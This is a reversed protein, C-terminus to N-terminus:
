RSQRRRPGLKAGVARALENAIREGEEDEVDNAAPQANEPMPAIPRALLEPLRRLLDTPIYLDGGLRLAQAVIGRAALEHQAKRWQRPTGVWRVLPDSTSGRHNLMMLAVTVIM